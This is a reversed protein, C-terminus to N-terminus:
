LIFYPSEHQFEGIATIGNDIQYIVGETIPKYKKDKPAASTFDGSNPDGNLTCGVRVLYTNKSEINYVWCGFTGRIEEFANKLSRIDDKKSDGTKIESYDLMSAIVETDVKTERLM